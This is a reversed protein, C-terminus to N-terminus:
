LSGSEGSLSSNDAQNSEPDTGIPRCGQDPQLFIRIGESSNVDIKTSTPLLKAWIAYYDRPFNRAFALLSHKPDKQLINFVEEVSERASM